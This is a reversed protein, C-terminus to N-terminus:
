SVRGFEAAQMVTPAQRILFRRAPCSSANCPVARQCHDSHVEPKRSAALYCTVDKCSSQLFIFFLVRETWVKLQSGTLLWSMISMRFMEFSTYRLHKAFIWRSRCRYECMEFWGAGDTSQHWMSPRLLTAVLRNQCWMETVKTAGVCLRFIDFPHQCEYDNYTM